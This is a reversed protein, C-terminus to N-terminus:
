SKPKNLVAFKISKKKLGFLFDFKKCYILFLVPTQM